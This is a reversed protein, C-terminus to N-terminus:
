VEYRVLSAKGAKLERKLEQLVSAVNGGLPGGQKRLLRAQLGNAGTVAFAGHMATKMGTPMGGGSGGGRTSRFRRTNTRSSPSMGGGGNQFPNVNGNSNLPSVTALNM